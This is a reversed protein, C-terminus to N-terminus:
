WDAETDADIESESLTFRSMQSNNEIGIGLGIPLISLPEWGSHEGGANSTRSEAAEVDTGVSNRRTRRSSLGGAAQVENKFRGAKGGERDQALFEENTCNTGKFDSRCATCLGSPMHKSTAASWGTSSSRVTSGTPSTIATIFRPISRITSRATPLRSLAAIRM